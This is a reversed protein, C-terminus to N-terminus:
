KLIEFDRVALGRYYVRDLHLLPFFSPFTKAPGKQSLEVEDLNLEQSLRSKWEGKWDNFDGALIVLDSEEVSDLIRAKVLEFQKRRDAPLLDLHLCFLHLDKQFDPLDLICHLLGRRALPSMSIDLNHIRKIEYRSLIANGHNGDEYETTMGYYHYPLVEESLIELPSKTFKAKEKSPHHGCVEQLFIFDAGITKLSERLDQLVYKRRLPSIAKAINYTLLKFHPHKM